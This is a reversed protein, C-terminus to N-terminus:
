GKGRPNLSSLYKCVSSYSVRHGREVLTRHMDKLRLCQKRMGAEEKAREIISLTRDGETIGGRMVRPTYTRKKYHPKISLYEAEGYEPNESLAGELGQLVRRVTKRDVHVREAIERQSVNEIRYYHLIQQKIDM